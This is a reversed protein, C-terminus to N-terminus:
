RRKNPELIRGEEDTVWEAPTECGACVWVGNRKVPPKGVGDCTDERRLPPRELREPLVMAAKTRAADEADAKAWQDQVAEWRQRIEPPMASVFEAASPFARQGGPELGGQVGFRYPGLAMVAERIYAVSPLRDHTRILREVAQTTREFDLGALAAAYVHQKSEDMPWWAAELVAIIKLAQASTM